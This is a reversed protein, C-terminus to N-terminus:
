YGRMQLLVALVTGLLPLRLMREEVGDCPDIVIETGSRVRFKGLQAWFFHAEREGVEFCPEDVRTRIPPVWDIKGLRITVDPAAEVSARLEPLPLCSNIGINYASYNFM